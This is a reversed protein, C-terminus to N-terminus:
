FPASSAAQQERAIKEVVFLRDKEFQLKKDAGSKFLSIRLFAAKIMTKKKGGDYSFDWLFM